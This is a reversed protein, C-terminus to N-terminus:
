EFNRFEYVPLRESIIRTQGEIGPFNVSSNNCERERERERAREGEREVGGDDDNPGNEIPSIIPAYIRM